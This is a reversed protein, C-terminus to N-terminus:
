LHNTYLLQQTIPQHVTKLVKGCFGEGLTTVQPIHINPLLLSFFYLVSKILSRNHAIYWNGMPQTVSWELVWPICPYANKERKDAPVRSIYTPGLQAQWYMQPEAPKIMHTPPEVGCIEWRRRPGHCHCLPIHLCYYVKFNWQYFCTVHSLGSVSHSPVVLNGLSCPYSFSQIPAKIRKQRSM